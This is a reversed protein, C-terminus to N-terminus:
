NLHKILTSLFLDISYPKIIVGNMLNFSHDGVVKEKEVATLALIPVTKNFKRIAETAEFGNMEPMNIDMLVLDINNDTEELSIISEKGSGVTLVDAGYKEIFKKTVIQNIKNDDVVLIRYRKLLLSNPKIQNTKNKIPLLNELKFELNFSITTGQGSESNININSNKEDLLKKVIPLGLGTGMFDQSQSSPKLRDFLHMKEKPSIGPGNDKIHFSIEITNDKQKIKELTINILGDNTFKSANNILNILIQALTARDGILVDPIDEDILISYENPNLESLPKSSEVINEILNRVKIKENKTINIENNEIQNFQLINNVLTLLYEASFRLSKINDNKDKFQNEELLIDSIGIIGYMPTRLEHTINSFLLSKAKSLEDSRDKEELYQKNKIILNALLKRRKLYSYLLILSFVLLISSAIKIWLVSTEQKANEAKIESLYIEKALQDKIENVKFKTTVNQIAELKDKEYKELELTDLKTQYTYAEEYFKFKVANEIINEYVAIIGDTFNIDELILLSEKFNDKAKEYNGTLSYYRGKSLKFGGIFGVFTNDTINNEFNDLYVKANEPENLDLYFNSINANLTQLKNTNKIKKALPILNKYLKIAERKSDDSEKSAIYTAFDLQTAIIGVTDKNKKSIQIGEYFIDKAMVTDEIALYSNGLYTSIQHYKNYYDNEKSLKRALEGYEISNAYNRSFYQKSVYKVLTDIRSTQITDNAKEISSQSYLAIPFFLFICTKTFNM